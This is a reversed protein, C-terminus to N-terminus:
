SWNKKQEIFVLLNIVTNSKKLLCNRWSIITLKKYVTLATIWEITKNVPTKNSWM